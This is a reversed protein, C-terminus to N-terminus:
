PPTHSGPFAPLAFIREAAYGPPLKRKLIDRARFCMQWRSVVLGNLGRFSPSEISAPARNGRAAPLIVPRTPAFIRAMPNTIAIAPQPLPPPLPAPPEWDVRVGILCRITTM